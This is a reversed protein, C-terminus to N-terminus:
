QYGPLVVALPPTPNRVVLPPAPQNPSPPPSGENAFRRAVEREREVVDSIRRDLRRVRIREWELRAQRRHDRAIRELQRAMDLNQQFHDWLTIAYVDDILCDAMDARPGSDLTLREIEEVTIPARVPPASFFRRRVEVMNPDPPLRPEIAEMQLAFAAQQSSTMPSPQDRQPAPFPIHYILRPQSPSVRATPFTTM